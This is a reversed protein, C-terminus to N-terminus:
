DRHSKPDNRNKGKLHHYYNNQGSGHALAKGYLLMVAKTHAIPRRTIESAQNTFLKSLSHDAVNLATGM